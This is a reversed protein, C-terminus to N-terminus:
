RGRPNAPASKSRQQVPQQVPRTFPNAVPKAEARNRASRSPMSALTALLM